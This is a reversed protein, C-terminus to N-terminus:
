WLRRDMTYAPAEPFRVDIVLPFIDRHDLATLLARAVRWRRAMAAEDGWGFVIDRGSPDSWFLGYQRNYGLQELVPALSSLAQVSQVLAEPLRRADPLPGTVVPLPRDDIPTFLLGEESVWWRQGTETVWVFRPEREEVLIRCGAPYLHREVQVSRVSPLVAVAAEAAARNFWLGHVGVVESARVIEAVRASSAGEVQVRETAVYWNADLWLWLVLAM